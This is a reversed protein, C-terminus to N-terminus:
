IRARAAAAFITIPLLWCVRGRAVSGLVLLLGGPSLRGRAVACHSLLTRAVRAWRCLKAATLFSLLPSWCRGLRGRRRSKCYASAMAAAAAANTPRRRVFSKSPSLPAGSGKAPLTLWGAEVASPFPAGSGGIGDSDIPDFRITVIRWTPVGVVAVSGARHAPLHLGVIRLGAKVHDVVVSVPFVQFQM